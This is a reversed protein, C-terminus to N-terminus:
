REEAPADLLRGLQVRARHLRQRLAEPALGCVAAARAPPMGEVGVLLVVERLAPPLAALAAELRAATQSAHAADLPSPDAAAPEEDPLATMWHGHRRRVDSIVLRRAVTFLWADLRTDPALTRAHRALRVFTEQLVDEARGPERTLRLAFAYLRPRWHEYAEALAAADGRRLEEVWGDANM